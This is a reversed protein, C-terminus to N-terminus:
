KYVKQHHGNLNTTKIQMGRVILLISCRKMYRNALQIDEKSIPRNLDKGMKQNPQKIKQYQTTYIKYILSKDTVDYAFIKVWETTQRKTKNITGKETCM